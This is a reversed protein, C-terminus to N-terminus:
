RRRASIAPTRAASREGSLAVSEAEAKKLYEELVTLSPGAIYSMREIKLKEAKDASFALRQDSEALIGLALLLFANYALRRSERIWTQKQM